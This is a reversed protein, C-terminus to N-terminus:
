GRRVACVAGSPVPASGPTTGPCWGGDARGRPPSGRLRVLVGGARDRDLSSAFLYQWQEHCSTVFGPIARTLTMRNGASTVTLAVVYENWAGTFTYVLATM